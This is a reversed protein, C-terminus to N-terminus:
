GLRRTVQLITGPGDPAALLDVGDALEQLLTLGRGPRVTEPKGQGQDRITLYLAIGDFDISIAIPGPRCGYAHLYANALGEGVSLEVDAAEIMSAGFARAAAAAMKRLMPFVTPDTTAQLTVLSGM